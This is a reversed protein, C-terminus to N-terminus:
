FLDNNEFKNFNVRDSFSNKKFRLKSCRQLSWFQFIKKQDFLDKIKKEVFRTM